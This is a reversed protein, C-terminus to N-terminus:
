RARHYRIEIDGKRLHKKENLAKQYVNYAEKLYDISFVANKSNEKQFVLGDGLYVLSHAARDFHYWVFKKGARTYDDFIKEQSFEHFEVLDGPQLDKKDIHYFHEELIGKLKYPKLFQDEEFFDPIITAVANWHCNPVSPISHGNSNEILGVIKQHVRQARQQDDLGIRNDIIQQCKEASIRLTCCSIGGITVTDKKPCMISENYGIALALNASLALSILAILKM